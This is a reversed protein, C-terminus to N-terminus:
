VRLWFELRTAVNVNRGRHVGSNHPNCKVHLQFLLFITNLLNMWIRFFCMSFLTASSLYLVPIYTDIAKTRVHCFNITNKYLLRIFLSFCSASAASRSTSVPFKEINKLGNLHSFWKASFINKLAFLNILVKWIKDNRM